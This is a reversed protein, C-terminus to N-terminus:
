RAETPMKTPPVIARIGERRLSIESSPQFAKNTPVKAVIIIAQIAPTKSVPSGLIKPSFVAGVAGIVAGVGVVDGVTGATVGEGVRLGIAGTTGNGM